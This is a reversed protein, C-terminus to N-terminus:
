ASPSMISPVWSQTGAERSWALAFKYSVSHQLLHYFLQFAGIAWPHEVLGRHAKHCNHLTPTLSDLAESIGPSNLDHNQAVEDEHHAVKRHLLGGDNEDNGNCDRHQTM